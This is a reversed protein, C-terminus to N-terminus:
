IAWRSRISRRPVSTARSLGSGKIDEDDSTLLVDDIASQQRQPRVPAEEEEEEEEEPPSGSMFQQALTAGTGAVMLGVQPNKLVWKGVAKVGKGVYKLAGKAKTAVTGVKQTFNMLGQIGLAGGKLERHRKALAVQSHSHGLLKKAIGAYQSIDVEPYMVPDLQAGQSSKQVVEDLVALQHNSLKLISDQLQHHHKHSFKKFYSPKL